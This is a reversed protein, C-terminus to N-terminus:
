RPGAGPAPSATPTAERDGLMRLILGLAAGAVAGGLLWSVPLPRRLLDVELPDSLNLRGAVGAVLLAGIVAFRMERPTPRRRRTATVLMSGIIGLAVAAFLWLAAAALLAVVEGFLLNM